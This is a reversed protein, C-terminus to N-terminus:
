TRAWTEAVEQISALPRRGYPPGFVVEEVGLKGLSQFVSCIHDAGGAITFHNLLEDTVSSSAAAYGRRRAVDQVRIADDDVDSMELVSRPTDAVVTATVTKAFKIDAKRGTLITPLWAVVRPPRSTRRTRQNQVIRVAKEIYSVPGSLIVGDAIKGALKLLSPGRVGLYVPIVTEPRYRAQYQRLEIGESNRSLVEGAWIERLADVTSELRQVPRTFAIGLRELDRLGGVGLGLRFRTPNAESLTEAVRAITTINRLLPSTIGIGVYKSPAHKMVSYTQLFIDKNSGIDEGTWIGHVPNQEACSAISAIEADTASSTLGVSLSVSTM